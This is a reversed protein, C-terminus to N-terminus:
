LRIRRKSHGLRSVRVQLHGLLSERRDTDGAIVLDKELVKNTNKGSHLIEKRSVQVDVYQSTLSLGSEMEQCTQSVHAKAEVIYDKVVESFCVSSCKQLQETTIYVLFNNEDFCFLLSHCCVRFM